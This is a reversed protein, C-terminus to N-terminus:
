NMLRPILLLGQRVTYPAFVALGIWYGRFFGRYGEKEHIKRALSFATKTKLAKGSQLKNKMVEMPTRTM